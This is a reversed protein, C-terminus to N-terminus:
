FLLRGLQMVGGAGAAVALATIMAEFFRSGGSLYDGQSLDRLANTIGMGPVLPMISGIVVAETNEGLGLLRLGIASIGVAAGGAITSLFPAVNKRSLFYVVGHLLIGTIWGAAMDKLGGGFLNAFFGCCVGYALSKTLFGYPKLQRITSLRQTAESLSLNEQTIDRSLQNVEIIKLLNICRSKVRVSRSRSGHSVTIGTLTAIVEANEGLYHALIRETTDEVRHTEAGNELLCLGAELATDLIDETEM